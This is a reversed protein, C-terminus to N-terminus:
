SEELLQDKFREWITESLQNALVLDAIDIIYWRDIMPPILLISEESTAFFRDGCTASVLILNKTPLGYVNWKVHSYERDPDDVKYHYVKQNKILEEFAERTYIIM